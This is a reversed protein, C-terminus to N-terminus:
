KGALKTELQQSRLFQAKSYKQSRAEPPAGKSWSGSRCHSLPLTVSRPLPPDPALRHPPPPWDTFSFHPSQLGIRPLLSDWSTSIYCGQWVSFLLVFVFPSGYFIDLSHFLIVKWRMESKKKTLHDFHFHSNGWIECKLGPTWNCLFRNSSLQGM